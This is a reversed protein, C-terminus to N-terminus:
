DNPQKNLNPYARLFAKRLKPSIHDIPKKKTIEAVRRAIEPRTTYVPTGNRGNVLYWVTMTGCQLKKAIEAYRIKM